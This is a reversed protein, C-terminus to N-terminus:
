LAVAAAAAASARNAESLAEICCLQVYKFTKCDLPADLGERLHSHNIKHEATSNIAVNLGSALVNGGYLHHPMAAANQFAIGAAACCMVSAIIKSQLFCNATAV